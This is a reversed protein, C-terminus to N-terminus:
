VKTYNVTGTLLEVATLFICSQQQVHNYFVRIMEFMLLTYFRCRIIEESQSNFTLM